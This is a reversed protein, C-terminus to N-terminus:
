RFYHYITWGTATLLTSWGALISAYPTDKTIELNGLVVIEKFVDPVWIMAVSLVVFLFMILWSGADSVDSCIFWATAVM